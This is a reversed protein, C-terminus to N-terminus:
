FSGVGVFDLFNLLDAMFQTPHVRNNLEQSFADKESLYGDSIPLNLFFAEWNTSSSLCDIFFIKGKWQEFTYAWGFDVVHKSLNM